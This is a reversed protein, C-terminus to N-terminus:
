PPKLWSIFHQHGSTLTSAVRGIVELPDTDRLALFAAISVVLPTGARVVWIVAVAIAAPPLPQHIELEMSPLPGRPCQEM